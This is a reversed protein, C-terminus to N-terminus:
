RIVRVGAGGHEIAMARFDGLWMRHHSPDALAPGEAIALVEM